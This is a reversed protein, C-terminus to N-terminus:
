LIDREFGAHFECGRCGLAFFGAPDSACRAAVSISLFNRETIQFAAEVLGAYFHVRDCRFIGSCCRYNWNLYNRKRKQLAARDTERSCIAGQQLKKEKRRNRLTQEQM